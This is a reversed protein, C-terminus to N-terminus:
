PREKPQLNHCWGETWYVVLRLSKLQISSASNKLRVIRMVESVQEALRVNSDVPGWTREAWESISRQRAQM